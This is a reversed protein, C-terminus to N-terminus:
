PSCGALSRQGHSEGPLFLVAAWELVRAQLIGHLSSGPLSCDRPDCLTPCSQAVESWKVEIGPDSLDGPPPCPLESWYEQTNRLVNKKFFSIIPCFSHLHCFSIYLLWAAHWLGATNTIFRIVETRIEGKPQYRGKGWHARISVGRQYYRLTM